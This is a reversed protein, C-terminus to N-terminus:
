NPLNVEVKAYGASDKASGFEGIKLAPDGSNAFSGAAGVYATDGAVPSGIIKNTLVWGQRLITIKGGVPVEDKYWNIHTKSLDTGVVDNLLIGLPRNSSTPSAVVTAINVGQDLASGTGATAGRCVAVGAEAVEACFYTVETVIECRDNSIM